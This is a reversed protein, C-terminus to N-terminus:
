GRQRTFIHFRIHKITGHYMIRLFIYTGILFLLGFAILGIALFFTGASTMTTEYFFLPVTISFITFPRIFLGILLAIATTIVVASTGVLAFLAGLIGLLPLILLVLNSIGLRLTAKIVRFFNPTTLEKEATEILHEAIHYKAVKSPIGIEAIVEDEALGKNVFGTIIEDYYTLINTRTDPPLEILLLELNELFDSKNM